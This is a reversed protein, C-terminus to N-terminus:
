CAVLQKLAAGDPHRRGVACGRRQLLRKRRDRDGSRRIRFPRRATEPIARLGVVRKERQRAIGAALAHRLHRAYAAQGVQGDEAAVSATNVIAGREGYADVAELTMMGAASKALCRFSGVLNVNIVKSFLDLPFHGIEGTNRDRSATKAAGGLGACNVLIREQGQAARLLRFGADVSEDSTVDVKAFAGGIEGAVREGQEANLDCIGVKVGRAALAIATAKGLGSAGGTVIAAVTENLKM